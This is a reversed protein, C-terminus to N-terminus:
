TELARDMHFVARLQVSVQTRVAIIEHLSIVHLRM